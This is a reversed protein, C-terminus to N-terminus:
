SKSSQKLLRSNRLFVFHVFAFIVPVVVEDCVCVCVCRKSIALQGAKYYLSELERIIFQSCRRRGESGLDERVGVLQLKEQQSPSLPLSLTHNM